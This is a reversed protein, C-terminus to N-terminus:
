AVRRRWLLFAAGLGILLGTGPEPVPQLYNLGSGSTLQANAQPVGNLSITAGGWTLTHSFDFAASALTSDGSGDYASQAVATLEVSMPLWQGTPVLATGHLPGIADGFYGHKALVPSNNYLYASAGLDYAGGGMDAVVQWNASADNHQNVSLSGTLDLTFNIQVQTGAAVGPLDIRFDDRFSSRALSNLSGTSNGDVKLMGIDAWAHAAGSSNFGGTVLGSSLDAPGSQTIVPNAPGTGGSFNPNVGLQVTVNTVAGAPAGLAAIVFALTTRIPQM